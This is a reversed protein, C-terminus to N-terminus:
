TVMGKVSSSQANTFGAMSFPTRTTHMRNPTTSPFFPPYANFDIQTDENLAEPLGDALTKQLGYVGIASANFLAPSNAGYSGCFQALKKTANIRSSLIIERRGKTWFFGGINVGTLNIIADANACDKGFTIDLNDWNLATVEDSFISKIKEHSRGIIVVEYKKCLFYKTLAQGIFGTGGAIVIKM